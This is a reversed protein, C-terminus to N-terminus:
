RFINSFIHCKTAQKNNKGDSINNHDRYVTENALGNVKSLRSSKCTKKYAVNKEVGGWHQKAFLGWAQM